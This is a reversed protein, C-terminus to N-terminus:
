VGNQIKFGNTEFKMGVITKVKPELKIMMNDGGSNKILSIKSKYEASVNDLGSAPLMRDFKWTLRNGEYSLVTDQVNIQATVWSPLEMELVSKRIKKLNGSVELFCNITAVGMENDCVILPTNGINKDAESVYFTCVVKSKKQEIINEVMGYATEMLALYVTLGVEYQYDIPIFTVYEFLNFKSLGFVVIIPVIIAKLVVKFITSVRM